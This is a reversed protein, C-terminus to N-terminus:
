IRGIASLALAISVIGAIVVQLASIVRKAIVESEPHLIWTVIDHLPSRAFSFVLIAIWSAIPLLLFVWPSPVSICVPMQALVFFGAMAIPTLAPITALKALDKIHEGRGTNLAIGSGICYIFWWIVVDPLKGCAQNLAVFGLVAVISSIGLRGLQARSIM